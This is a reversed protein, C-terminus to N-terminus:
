TAAELKATLVANLDRGGIVPADPPVPPPRSTEEQIVRAGDLRTGERKFCRNQPRTPNESKARKRGRMADLPDLFRYANSSRVVELVTGWHGFLDREERRV